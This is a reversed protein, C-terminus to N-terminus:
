GPYKDNMLERLRDKVKEQCSSCVGTNRDLDEPCWHYSMICQDDPCSGQGLAMGLAKIVEKSLRDYMNKRQPSQFRRVSVVVTNNDYGSAFIFRPFPFRDWLGQNTILLTVIGPPLTAILGRFAERWEYSKEERIIPDPSSVVM